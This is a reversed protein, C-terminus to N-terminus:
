QPSGDQVWCTLLQIDTASLKPADKPMPKYGRKHQIAGLFNTNHSAQAAEVYNSYDMGQEHTIADHCGSTACNADLISKIDSTYTTTLGTCDAMDPDEKACAVLFIFVTCVLAICFTNPYYLPRFRM